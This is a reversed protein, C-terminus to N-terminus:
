LIEPLVGLVASETSQNTQIDIIAHATTDKQTHTHTHTHPGRAEEKSAWAFSAKNSHVKTPLENTIKSAQLVILLVYSDMM